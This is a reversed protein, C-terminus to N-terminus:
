LDLHAFDPFEKNHKPRDRHDDAQNQPASKGRFPQSVQGAINSDLAFVARKIKRDHGTEDNADHQTQQHRDKTTSRPGPVGRHVFVAFLNIKPPM